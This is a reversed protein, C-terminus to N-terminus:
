RLIRQETPLRGIRVMIQYALVCCGAGFLLVLVGAGSAFATAADSSFSMVLLVLWPAAVAIRAGNVTWAQRAELESRVREDDRLHGSLSRLLRGLETGGVERAIRLAEVVRDGVPDALTEKLRDLCPGFRGTSQYDRGFSEFAPRLPEPGRIALGALAEPLSLGARVGSSLHDVAEPWVLAFERQRRRARGRLVAVPLWGAIAAFALSIPVTRAVIQLVLGAALACALCLLVVSRASVGTAGARELLLGVPSPRRTRAAKEAVDRPTVLAIWILWLGIGAALGLAAGM